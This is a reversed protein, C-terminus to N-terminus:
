IKRTRPDSIPFDFIYNLKKHQHEMSQMALRWLRLQFLHILLLVDKGVGM